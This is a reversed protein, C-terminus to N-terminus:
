AQMVIGRAHTGSTCFLTITPPVWPVTTHYQKTAPHPRTRTAHLHKTADLAPGVSSYLPQECLAYDM